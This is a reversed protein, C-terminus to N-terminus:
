VQGYRPDCRPARGVSGSVATEEAKLVDAKSNSQVVYPRLPQRAAEVCTTVVLSYSKSKEDYM